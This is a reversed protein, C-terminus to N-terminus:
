VIQEAMEKYYIRLMVRTGSINNEEDRRDEISYFSGVHKSQSLLTLRQATIQLGMSKQKEASKSKLAEAAERGIGDDEIVCQLVKEQMSLEINLHGYGDKQILGHWIANECFPQLLLPPILVAGEDITNALIIRYEFSDKFRLREMDLYLRLMHLEDELTIMSKQSNILVMRILRSFRTLYDSAAQSENKLIIRNISSLCNFIFHPNMQARLAQMELEVAQQQLEAQKKENEFQQMKLNNELRERQLKETRRKLTITRYIFVGAIILVFFGAFLFNRILSEQKLQADKLQNDKNLLLLRAEKKEDGAVRKYNNLRWLFQKNQVSDKLSIYKLLSSYASDNNGLQHYIRSIIEYGSVLDPKDDKLNAFFLGQKAYILATKYDNKKAYAEGMFISPDILGWAMVTDYKGSKKFANLSLNFMGIAKDYQGTKLYIKGLLTNGYAKHGFYYSEYKKKWIQWYHYASDYNGMLYYLECFDIDWSPGAHQKAYRDSKYEYELATEFDGAAKFLGAMNTFSSQVLEHEWSTVPTIKRALQICKDAYEVAVDHAGKAMLGWVLYTTVELEMKQDGAKQYHYISQKYNEIVDGQDWMAYYVRGLLEDNQIEKALLLAQRTYDILISDEIAKRNTSDMPGRVTYSSVLNLLSTAIGYKYRIQTAEKNAMLAYKYISDGGRKSDESSYSSKFFICKESLSNLCDVRGSDRLSPLIRRMSDIKLSDTKREETQQGFSHLCCASLLATILLYKKM